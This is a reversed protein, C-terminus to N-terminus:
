DLRAKFQQVNDAGDRKIKYVWNCPLAKRRELLEVFDGFVQDHGIADLKAIIAMDWKEALPSETAAKCSKPVDNCDEHNRNNAIAAAVYINIMDEFEEEEFAL